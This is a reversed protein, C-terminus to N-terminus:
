ELLITVNPLIMAWCIVSSLPTLLATTALTHFFVLQQKLYSLACIVSFYINLLFYACHIKSLIKFEFCIKKANKCLLPKVMNLIKLFCKRQQRHFHEIHIGGKIKQLCFCGYSLRILLLSINNWSTQDFVGKTWGKNIWREYSAKKWWKEIM